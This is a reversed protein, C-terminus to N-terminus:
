VPYLSEYELKRITKECEKCICSIEEKSLEKEAHGCSCYKLLRSGSEYRGVRNPKYFFGEARDKIAKNEMARMATSSSFYVAKLVNGKKIFRQIRTVEEVPRKIIDEYKILLQNKNGLWSEVHNGWTGGFCAGDLFMDVTFRKKGKIALYSVASLYVDVPHRVVYIAPERPAFSHTKIFFRGYNEDVDLLTKADFCLSSLIFRIWSNGSRPYSAVVIKDWMRSM